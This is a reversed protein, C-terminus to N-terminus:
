DERRVGWTFREAPDFHLEERVGDGFGGFVEALEACALVADVAPGLAVLAAFEVAHYTVNRLRAKGTGREGWAM